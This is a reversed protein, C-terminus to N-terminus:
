TKLREVENEIHKIRVEMADINTFWQTVLVFASIFAFYLIFGLFIAAPIDAISTDRILSFIWFDLASCLLGMIINRKMKERDLVKRTNELEIELLYVDKNM